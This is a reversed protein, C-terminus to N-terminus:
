KLAKAAADFDMAIGFKSADDKNIFAAIGWGMPTSFKQEAHVYFAKRADLWAGSTFDKVEIRADNVVAHKKLYAFLDGIDCFYLTADGQTTKASFKSTIDVKMGCESCRFDAAFATSLVLLILIIATITTRLRMLM